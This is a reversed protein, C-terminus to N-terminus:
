TGLLHPGRWVPVPVTPYLSLQTCPCNPVTVSPYLHSLQTCPCVPVLPAVFPYLSLRTCTRCVPVPVFPYLPAVFPYLSLRTCTRCDPVAVFPYLPAVFPYLSLRTCTRCVPVSVFPYLSLRTCSFYKSFLEYTSESWPILSYSKLWILLFAEVWGIIGALLKFVTTTMYRMYCFFFLISHANPILEERYGGTVRIPITTSSSPGRVVFFFWFFRYETVSLRHKVGKDFGDILASLGHAPGLRRASVIDVDRHGEDESVAPPPQFASMM